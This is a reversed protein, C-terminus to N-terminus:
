ALSLHFRTGRAAAERVVVRFAQLCDLVSEQDREATWEASGVASVLADLTAVADTPGHWLEEAPVDDVAAFDSLPAHGAAVALEDLEEIFELLVVGEDVLGHEHRDEFVPWLALSM